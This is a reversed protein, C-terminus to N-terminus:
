AGKLCTPALDTYSKASEAADGTGLQSRGEGSVRHNVASKATLQFASFKAAPKKLQDVLKRPVTWTITKTAPDAVVPVDMEDSLTGGALDSDYRGAQEGTAYVHYAVSQRVGSVTWTFIYSVGTAQLEDRELSALRMAVVLNKRGTAIDGSLIDLQPADAVGYAKADGSADVVQLCVPVPRKPAADAAATLGSAALAVAAALVISRM